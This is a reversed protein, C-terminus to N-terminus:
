GVKEEVATLRREHDNLRDGVHGLMRAIRGLHHDTERHHRVVTAAMERHWREMEQHRREMDERQRKFAERLEAVEGHLNVVLDGGGKGNGNGKVMRKM